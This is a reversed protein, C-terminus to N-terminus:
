CSYRVIQYDLYPLKHTNRYMVVIYYYQGISHDCPKGSHRCQQVTLQHGQLQINCQIVNNRRDSEIVLETPNVYAQVVYSGDPVGTIDIWQCDLYRPYLDGCNVSIGQASGGCRYRRSTGSDCISDELCFSAKHGEAVKEGDFNLLDYEVFVEYSHYHRHCQHWQWDARNLVPTFDRLGYNTTFSDFRLLKRESRPSQGQADSALCSEELACQLYYMSRNQVAYGNKLSDSFRKLDPVLDPREAFILLSTM